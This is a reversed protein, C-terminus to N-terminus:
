FVNRVPKGLISSHIQRLHFVQQCWLNPDFRTETFHFPHWNEFNRVAELNRLSDDIFYYDESPDFDKYAEPSPKFTGVDQCKVKVRDSIANAVTNVWKAPANSFLTVDWGNLISDNIYEADIQFERSELVSALHSMVGKDYVFDNYDSTDVSFRKQLGLATHGYDNYLFKNVLIRDECEPIKKQVYCSANHKVHSLLLRNRVVVGDVDLILNPM